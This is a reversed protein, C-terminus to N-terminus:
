TVARAIKGIATRMDENAVRLADVAALLDADGPRVRAVNARSALVLAMRVGEPRTVDYRECLADLRSLLDPSLDVTVPVSLDRRTM